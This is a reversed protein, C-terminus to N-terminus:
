PDYIEDLSGSTVEEVTPALDIVTQLGELKDLIVQRSYLDAEVSKRMSHGLQAIEEQSWDPMALLRANKKRYRSVLHAAREAITTLPVSGLLGNCEGCAPVTTGKTFSRKKSISRSSWCTVHDRHSPGPSLCYTCLKM